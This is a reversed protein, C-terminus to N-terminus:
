ARRDIAFFSGSRRKSFRKMETAVDILERYDDVQRRINTAAGISISLLPKRIGRGRRDEVVIYGNAADQPDHLGGAGADFHRIIDECLMEIDEFRDSGVVVVFDDGGIHGLFVSDRGDVSSRIAEATYAIAHDGRLFGYRDNFSKFNDLDVHLVAVRDGREIRRYIEEHIRINGPLGTLPSVERLQSSRRLTSQVRCVLVRPDFPKVVYDDAGATLGAVQEGPRSKASLIIIPIDATHRNERLRECVELGDMEPMMVDLVILDPRREHALTLAEKGTSASIVDYGVSRLNLGVINVIDPEDDAVLIEEPM